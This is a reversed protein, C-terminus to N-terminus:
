TNLEEELKQRAKREENIESELKSIYTAAEQSTVASKVTVSVISKRESIENPRNSAPGPQSERMTRIDFEKLAKETLVPETAAALPAPVIKNHLEELAAESMARYNKNSHNRWKECM